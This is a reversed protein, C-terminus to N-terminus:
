IAVMAAVTERLRCSGDDETVQDTQTLNGYTVEADRRKEKGSKRFIHINSLLSGRGRMCYVTCVM